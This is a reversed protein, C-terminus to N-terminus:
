NKLDVKSHTSAYLCLIHSQAKDFFFPACKCACNEALTKILYCSFLCFREGTQQYLSQKFHEINVTHMEKENLELTM